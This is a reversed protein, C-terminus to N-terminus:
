SESYVTFRPNEEPSSESESDWHVYERRFYKDNEYILNNIMVCLFMDLFMTFFYNFVESKLSILVKDIGYYIVVLTTAIATITVGFAHLLSLPINLQMENFEQMSKTLSVTMWITRGIQYVSLLSVLIGLGEMCRSARESKHLFDLALKPHLTYTNFTYKGGYVSSIICASLLGLILLSISIKRAWGVM